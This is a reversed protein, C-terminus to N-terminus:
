VEITSIKPCHSISHAMFGDTGRVYSPLEQIKDANIKLWGKM